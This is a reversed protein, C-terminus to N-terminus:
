CSKQFMSDLGHPPPFPEKILPGGRGEWPVPVHGWSSWHSKKGQMHIMLLTVLLSFVNIKATTDPDLLQATGAVSGGEHWLQRIRLPELGPEEAKEKIGCM